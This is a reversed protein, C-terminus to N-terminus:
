GRVLDGILSQALTLKALTVTGAAIEAVFRRVREIEAAESARWAAVGADGAGFRPVLDVALRRLALDLGDVARDLALREFRDAVAVGAAGAKLASLGFTRGLAFLTAAAAVVDIGTREAVLVADPAAALAPLDTMRTALDAPLGEARLAEIRRLREAAQEPALLDPVAAALAEVGTRFRGVLEDLGGSLGVNRLMWVTRSLMLDQVAAYLRL